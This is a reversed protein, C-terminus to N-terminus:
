CPSNSAVGGLLCSSTKSKRLWKTVKVSLRGHGFQVEEIWVCVNPESRIAQWMPLLFACHVENREPEGVSHRMIQASLPFRFTFCPQTYVRFRPTGFHLAFIMFPERACDFAPKIDAMTRANQSPGIACFDDGFCQVVEIIFSLGENREDHHWVVDM